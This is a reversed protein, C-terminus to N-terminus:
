QGLSRRELPQILMTPSLIGGGILVFAFGAVVYAYYACARPFSM